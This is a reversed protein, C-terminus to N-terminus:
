GAGIAEDEPRTSRPRAAGLRARLAEIRAAQERYEPDDQTRRVPGPDGAGARTPMPAPAPTACRRTDPVPGADARGGGAGPEPMRYRRARLRPHGPVIGYCGHAARYLLGDRMLGALVNSVYGPTASFGMNAIHQRADASTVFGEAREAILDVIAAQRGDKPPRGLRPLDIQMQRLRMLFPRRVPMPMASLAADIATMLRQCTREARRADTRVEDLWDHERELEGLLADVADHVPGTGTETQTM